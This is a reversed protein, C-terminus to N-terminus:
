HADLRIDGNVTDLSIVPEGAGLVVGGYRPGFAAKQELPITSTIQGSMSLALIRADRPPAPLRLAVNGNFARLHLPSTVPATATFRIDGLTTELRTPGTLSEGTIGGREVTTKVPGQLGSLTVGGEFLEIAAFRTQRPAHITLISELSADNTPELQAASITVDRGDRSVTASADLRTLDDASAARRDIDVDLRDRDWGIVTIQGVTARVRVQSDPGVPVTHVTRHHAGRRSSALSTGISLLGLFLLVAVRSWM